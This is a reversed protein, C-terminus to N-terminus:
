QGMAAMLAQHIDGLGVPAMHNQGIWVDKWTVWYAQAKGMAPPTDRFLNIGPVGFARAVIGGHLSSGCYARAHALLACLDWLHLSHFLQVERTQLLGILRRYVEEDDHWPAAGARFLCLGLGTELVVQDLQAALTGLSADDGFNGSFQLAAYGQPFRMRVRAPDGSVAHTAIERSFLQAVREGPDPILEAHLGWGALHSQTVRDRVSLSDAERLRTRVESQMEQPLAPIDVGGVAQYTFRGPNHFLAKPVLYAMYQEPKLQAQAWVKRELPHSDYRAIAEAAQDPSLLMVAAEYLSCTLLEGGVHCVEAPQEGWERALAAISRVRHGGWPRMDREAMGAFVLPRASHQASAIHALLLDGFNHRDFAGFLILPTDTLPPMAPGNCQGNENDIDSDM